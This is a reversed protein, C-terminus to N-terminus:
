GFLDPYAPIPGNKEPAEGLLATEFHFCVILNFQSDRRWVTKCNREWSLKEEWVDIKSGL